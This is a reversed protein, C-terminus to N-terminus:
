PQAIKGNAFVSKAERQMRDLSTSPLLITEFARLCLKQEMSTTVVFLKQKMSLSSSSALMRHM